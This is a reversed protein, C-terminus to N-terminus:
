HAPTVRTDLYPLQQITKLSFQGKQFDSKRSSYLVPPVHKCIAWLHKIKFIIRTPSFSYNVAVVLVRIKKKVKTTGDLSLRRTPNIHNFWWKANIIKKKDTRKTNKGVNLILAGYLFYWEGWFRYVIVKTM